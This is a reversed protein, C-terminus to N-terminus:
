VIMLIGVRTYTKIQDQIISPLNIIIVVIQEMLLIFLLFLHHLRIGIFKWLIILLLLRLIVQLIMRYVTGVTIELESHLRGLLLLCRGQFIKQKILWFVRVRIPGMLLIFVLIPLVMCMLLLVILFLVRLVPLIILLVM